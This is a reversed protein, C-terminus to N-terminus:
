LKTHKKVAEFFEELLTFPTKLICKLDLILSHNKVYFLDYATKIKYEELTTTYKYNIQAWGTIGPKVKLRCTYNPINEKAMIHFEELEPRPGVISMEGKLVNYIQPLEDLRLPRLIKGIPTVRKNNEGNTYTRFKYMDFSEGSLGIRKQTIIIPKGSTLLMILCLLAMIPLAAIFLILGFCIDLFRKVRDYKRFQIEDCLFSSPEIFEKRRPVYRAILHSFFFRVATAAFAPFAVLANFPLFCILIALFISGIISVIHKSRDTLVNYEYGRMIIAILSSMIGGLFFNSWGIPILVLSLLWDIILMFM